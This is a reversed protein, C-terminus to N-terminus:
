GQRPDIRVMRFGEDLLRKAEQARIAPTKAGM